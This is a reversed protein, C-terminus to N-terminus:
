LFYSLISNPLRPNQQLYGLVKNQKHPCFERTGSPPCTRAPIHLRTKTVCSLVAMPWASVYLSPLCLDRSWVNCTFTVPWAVTHGVVALQSILAPGLSASHKRWTLSLWFIRTAEPLVCHLPYHAWTISNRGCYPSPPVERRCNFTHMSPGDPWTRAKQGCAWHLRWKRVSIVNSWHTPPASAGIPCWPQWAM